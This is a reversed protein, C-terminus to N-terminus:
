ERNWGAKNSGTERAIGSDPMDGYQDEYLHRSIYCMEECELDMKEETVASPKANVKDFYERGAAVIFGRRYMFGDDSGDTYEQVEARDLDYLKRELIRDFALLDKQALDNLAAELAPIFEGLADHLEEVQEDSLRGTALKKRAKQGTTEKWADDILKWFKKEDM